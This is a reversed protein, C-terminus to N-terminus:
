TNQFDLEEPMPAYQEDMFFFNGAQRLDTDITSELQELSPYWEGLFRFYGEQNKLREETEIENEIKELSPYEDGMFRFSNNGGAKWKIVMEYPRESAVTLQAGEGVFPLVQERLEHWTKSDITLVIQEDPTEVKLLTSKSAWGTHNESHIVQAKTPIVALLVATTLLAIVQRM